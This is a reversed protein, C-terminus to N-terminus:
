EVLPFNFILKNSNNTGNAYKILMVDENLFKTQRRAIHNYLNTAFHQCNYLTNYLPFHDFYSYAHDMLDAMNFDSIKASDVVNLQPKVVGSDNYTGSIKDAWAVDNINCNKSAGTYILRLRTAWIDPVQGRSGRDLLFHRYDKSFMDKLPNGTKVRVCVEVVEHQIQTPEQDLPVKEGGIIYKFFIATAEPNSTYWQDENSKAIEDIVLKKPLYGAYKGYLKAAQIELLKGAVNLSYNGLLYRLYQDWPNFPLHTINFPLELLPVYDFFQSRGDESNVRINSGDGLYFYDTIPSQSFIPAIFVLILLFFSIKQM